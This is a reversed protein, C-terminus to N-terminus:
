IWYMDFVIARAKQSSGKVEWLEGGETFVSFFGLGTGEVCQLLGDGGTDVVPSIDRRWGWAAIAM